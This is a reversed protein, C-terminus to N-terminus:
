EDINGEKKWIKELKKKLSQRSDNLKHITRYINNEMDIMQKDAASVQNKIGKALRKLKGPVTKVNKQSDQTATEIDTYTSQFENFVTKLNRFQIYLKKIEDLSMESENKIRAIEETM